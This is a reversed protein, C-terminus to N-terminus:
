LSIWVLLLSILSSISAIKRKKCLKRVRTLAYHIRESVRRPDIGLQASIEQVSLEQFYRQDLVEKYKPELGQLLHRLIRNREENELLYEEASAAMEESPPDSHFITRERNTKKFWDRIKNNTVGWTFAELSQWKEPQFSENRLGQMIALYVESAVDKINEIDTKISRCIKWLIPDKYKNFLEEEAASDGSQIRQVLRRQYEDKM